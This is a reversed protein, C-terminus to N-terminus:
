SQHTLCSVQQASRLDWQELKSNYWISHLNEDQTRYAAARQWIQKQKLTLPDQVLFAPLGLLNDLAHLAELDVVPPTRELLNKLEKIGQHNRLPDQWQILILIKTVLLYDSTPAKKLKKECMNFAQKWQKSAMLGSLANDQGNM